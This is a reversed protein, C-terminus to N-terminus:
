HTRPHIAYVISAIVDINIDHGGVFAVNWTAAPSSLVQTTYTMTAETATVTMTATTLDYEGTITDSRNGYRGEMEITRITWEKINTSQKDIVETVSPADFNYAGAISTTRNAVTEVHPGIYSMQLAIRETLGGAIDTAVTGKANFAVLGTCNLGTTGLVTGTVNGYCQYTHDGVITNNVTGVVSTMKNGIVTSQADEGVYVNLSGPVNITMDKGTMVLATGAANQMRIRSVGAGIDSEIALINCPQKKDASCEDWLEISKSSADMKIFYRFAEGDSNATSLLIRKHYKTDIEIFYTDDDNIFKHRGEVNSKDVDSKNTLAIDLASLRVQEFPRLDDDRELPLWFFTDSNAYNIVLVQQGKYMTPVSRSVMLGMYEAVITSAIGVTTEETENTITNKIKVNHQAINTTVDGSTTPLLEPVYVRFTRQNLTTTSEALYGIFMRWRNPIDQM